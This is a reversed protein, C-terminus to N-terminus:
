PPHRGRLTGPSYALAALAILVPGAFVDALFGLRSCDIAINRWAIIHRSHWPAHDGAARSPRGSRLALKPDTTRGAPLHWPKKLQKETSLKRPRARPFHQATALRQSSSLLLALSYMPAFDGVAATSLSTGGLSYRAQTGKPTISQREQRVGAEFRWNQLRYEELLFISLSKTITKPLFSEEGLASFDSRAGQMGFVGRWGAIPAHEFEVCADYGRNKFTTAAAGGEIEQHQYDTMGWRRRVKRVGALPERYEGLRDIRQNEM